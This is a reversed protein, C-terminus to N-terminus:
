NRSYNTNCAYDYIAYSHMVSRSARRGPDITHTNSNSFENNSIVTLAKCDINWVTRIMGKERAEQLCLQARPTGISQRCLSTRDMLTIVKPNNTGERAIAVVGMNAVNALYKSAYSPQAISNLVLSALVIVLSSKM